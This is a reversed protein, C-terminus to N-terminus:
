SCYWESITKNCGPTISNSKHELLMSQVEYKWRRFSIDGKSSLDSSFSSLRPMQSVIPYQLTSPHVHPIPPPSISTVPKPPLGPSGSVLQGLKTIITNLLEPKLKSFVTDVQQVASSDSPNLLTEVEHLLSPDLLTIKLPISKLKMGDFDHICRSCDKESAFVVYADRTM